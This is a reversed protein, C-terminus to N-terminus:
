TGDQVMDFLADNVRRVLAADSKRAAIGCPEEYLLDGFPVIELNKAKGAYFGGVILDSVFADVKDSQMAAVIEAESGYRFVEVGPFEEPHEDIYKAYTSDETVGFKLGGISKTGDRVFVQAGSVYYPLTFHMTELREDTIAMSGCILDYQETHLGAQIGSWDIQVLKPELGLRKAVETAIDADFGVLSGNADTISFPQFAGSMALSLEGERLQAFAVTPVLVVLLVLKRLIPVM